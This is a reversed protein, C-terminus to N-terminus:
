QQFFLSFFSLETDIKNGDVVLLTVLYFSTHTSTKSDVASLFIAFYYNWLTWKTYKMINM